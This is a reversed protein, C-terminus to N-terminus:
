SAGGVTPRSYRRAAEEGAACAEAVWTPACRNALLHFATSYALWAQIATETVDGASLAHLHERMADLRSNNAVLDDAITM